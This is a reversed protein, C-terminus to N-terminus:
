HKATIIDTLVLDRAMKFEKMVNVSLGHKTSIEDLLRQMM